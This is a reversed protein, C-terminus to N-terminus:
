HRWHPGRPSWAYHRPEWHGGYWHRHSGIWGWYGAIWLFGPRPDPVREVVVVPEPQYVPQPPATQVVPEIPQARTGQTKVKYIATSSCTNRGENNYTCTPQECSLQMLQDNKNLDRTEEKWENCATTWNRRAEDLTLAPQGVISANGDIIDFTQAYANSAFLPGLLSLALIWKSSFM